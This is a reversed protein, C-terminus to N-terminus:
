TVDAASIKVVKKDSKLLLNGDSDLDIFIGEITKEDLKVTIKEQLRYAKELWLQRVGRFGFDLWNQYIKEFEDLFSKLALEVSISVGFNKLNTAGFITNDPNSEINLGIGLIVFQCDKASIKSELLLGAVKKQEILLDNPWKVLVSNKLLKEVALRLALIAVFSIQSILAATIKPKLVLSFYLNGKPSSWDRKQRGRGQSQSNALIIERDSIKNLNALEFATSNTSELEEFQHITFNQYTWNKM